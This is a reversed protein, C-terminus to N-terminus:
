SFLQRYSSLKDKFAPHEIVTPDVLGGCVIGNKISLIIEIDNAGIGAICQETFCLAHPALVVNDLGLLPEGRLPPEPDFVDLGAGAISRTKLCEVLAAQDIVPGRSTNIVFATPKMMALRAANAIHHTDPSYPTNFTLFDAERFATELDVLRVGLSEAVGQNAWPDHAIFVMDLPKCLRFIEAGINGLGISALTKGVLGVGMYPARVSFDHHSRVLADKELLRGSLALIFTLVAVAVPRRVGDPTIAVAIGNASCAEVDVSDYGVGFRAVICLRGSAPISADTFLEDLLILADFDKLSAALMTNTDPEADVFKYEIHPDADLAALDFDPFAAHGESNRFHGSLAVRFLSM